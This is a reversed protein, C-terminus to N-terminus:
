RESFSRSCFIPLSVALSPVYYTHASHWGDCIFLGNMNLNGYSYCFAFRADGLMPRDGHWMFVRGERGFLGWKLRGRKTWWWICVHRGPGIFCNGITRDWANVESNNNNNNGEAAARRRPFKHLRQKAYNEGIIHNIDRGIFPFLIMIHKQTTYVITIFVRDFLLQVNSVNPQVAAVWDIMAICEPDPPITPALCHCCEARRRNIGFRARQQRNFSQTFPSLAVVVGIGPRRQGFPESPQPSFFPQQSQPTKFPTPSRAENKLEVCHCLLVTTTTTTTMCELLVAMRLLMSEISGKSKRKKQILLWETWLASNSPLINRSKLSSPHARGPRCHSSWVGNSLSAFKKITFNNYFFTFILVRKQCRCFSLSMANNNQTKPTRRARRARHPGPRTQSETKRKAYSRKKKALVM